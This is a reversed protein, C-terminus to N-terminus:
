VADDEGIFNKIPEEGDSPCWKLFPIKYRHCLEAFAKQEKKLFRDDRPKVEAFGFISGDPRYVTFDPYGRKSCSIGHDKLCVAFADEAPNCFL